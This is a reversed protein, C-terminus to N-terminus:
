IQSHGVTDWSLLAFGGGNGFFASIAFVAGPLAVVALTALGYALHGNPCLDVSSDICVM